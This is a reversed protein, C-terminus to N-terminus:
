LWLPPPALSQAALVTGLRPAARAALEQIIQIKTAAGTNENKRM